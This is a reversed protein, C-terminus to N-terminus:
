GVSFWEGTVFNVTQLHNLAITVADTLDDHKEIGFGVLQNVIPKCREDRPLLVRGQEFLMSAAMLRSHKDGKASVGQINYISEQLAEIM